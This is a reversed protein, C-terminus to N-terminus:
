LKIRLPESLHGGEIEVTNHIDGGSILVKAGEVVWPGGTCM